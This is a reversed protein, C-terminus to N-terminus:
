LTGMARGKYGPMQGSRRDITANINPFFAITPEPLILLFSSAIDFFIEVISSSVSLATACHTRSPSGTNRSVIDMFNFAVAQRLQTRRPGGHVDGSTKAPLEPAKM